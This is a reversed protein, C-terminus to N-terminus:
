FGFSKGLAKGLGSNKGGKELAKELASVAKDQLAKAAGTQIIKAVDPYAVLAPAKGRISLPIILRGDGALINKMNKNRQTLAQSFDKTFYIATNMSVTGDAAVTGNGDLSFIDSSLALSSISISRGQVTFTATCERINTDASTLYRDFERPVFQRLAGELFPISDVKTLIVNPLNTGKLVANTVRLTGPAQTSGAVDGTLQGKPQLKLSSITGTANNQLEPKFARLLAELSLTSAAIDASYQKAGLQSLTASVNTVGGFGKVSLASVNISDRKMQTNFALTLPAEQYTLKLNDSKVNLDATTGTLLLSGGIDTMSVSPSSAVSVGSLNVSGTLHPLPSTPNSIAVKFSLDGGLGLPSLAPAFPSLLSTVKKLALGKSAIQVAGSSDKPTVEGQIDVSGAETNLIVTGLSLKSSEKNFSLNSASVSIPPTGKVIFQLTAEPITTQAGNLAIASKLQIANISVARGTTKDDFLLEGDRVVIEEIRIALGSDAQSAPSGATAASGRPTSAPAASPPAKQSSLNLGPIVVGSVTKELTLAPRVLEISSLELQKSLLPLLAAEARLGGLALPLREGKENTVALSEVNVALTPFLSVSLEGLTVKAGLTDSLTDEIKPKYLAIVDNARTILIVLAVILVTLFASLAIILKKKM